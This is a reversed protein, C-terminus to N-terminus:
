AFQQSNKKTHTYPVVKTTTTTKEVEKGGGGRRYTAIHQEREREKYVSDPM